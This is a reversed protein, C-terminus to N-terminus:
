SAMPLTRSVSGVKMRTLNVTEMFLGTACQCVAGLEGLTFGRRALRVCVYLSFQYFLTALVIDSYSLDPLLVKEILRIGRRCTWVSFQGRTGRMADPRWREAAMKLVTACGTLLFSFTVISWTRRWESIRAWMWSPRGSSHPTGIVDV